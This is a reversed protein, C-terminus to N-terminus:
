MAFWFVLTCGLDGGGGLIFNRYTYNLTILNLDEWIYGVEAQKRQYEAEKEEHLRQM